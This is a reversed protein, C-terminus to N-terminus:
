QMSMLKKVFYTHSHMTLGIVVDKLNERDTRSIKGWMEKFLGSSLITFESGVKIHTDPIKMNLFKEENQDYIESAHSLITLTFKDIPLRYNVQIAKAFLHQYDPIRYANMDFNYKTMISVLVRFLDTGSQNFNCIVEEETTTTALEVILQVTEEAVKELEKIVLLMTEESYKLSLVNQDKASM